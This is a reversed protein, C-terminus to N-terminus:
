VTTLGRDEYPSRPSDVVVVGSVWVASLQVHLEFSRGEMRVPIRQGVGGASALRDALKAAYASDIAGDYEYTVGNIHVYAQTMEIVEM